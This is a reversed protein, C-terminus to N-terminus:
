LKSPIIQTNFLHDFYWRGVLNPDSNSKWVKIFLVKRSATDYCGYVALPFTWNQFGML